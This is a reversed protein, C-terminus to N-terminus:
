EYAMIGRVVAPPFRVPSDAYQKEWLLNQPGFQDVFTRRSGRTVINDCCFCLGLVASHGIIVTILDVKVKATAGYCHHCIVQAQTDCAACVGREKIWAM